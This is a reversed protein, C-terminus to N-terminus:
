SSAVEWLQIDEEIRRQREDAVGVDGVARMIESENASM